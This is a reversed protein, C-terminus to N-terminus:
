LASPPLTRLNNSKQITIKSKYIEFGSECIVFEFDKVKVKKSKLEIKLEAERFRQKAEIKRSGVKFM